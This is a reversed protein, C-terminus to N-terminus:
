RIRLRTWSRKTRRIRITWRFRPRRRIGRSRSNKKANSAARQEFSNGGFADFLIRALPKHLDLRRDFGYRLGFLGAAALFLAGFLYLARPATLPIAAAPDVQRGIRESEALQALRIPESIGRRPHGDTVGSFYLATSIADRLTLREDVIQAM